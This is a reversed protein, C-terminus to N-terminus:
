GRDKDGTGVRSGECFDGELEDSEDSNRRIKKQSQSRWVKSVEFGFCEFRESPSDKSFGEQAEWALM